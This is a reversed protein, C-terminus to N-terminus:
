DYDPEDDVSSLKIYLDDDNALITELWEPAPFYNEAKATKSDSDIVNIECKVFELEPGEAPHGAYSLSGYHASCGGTLSYEIFVLVSKKPTVEFSTEHTFTRVKAEAERGL